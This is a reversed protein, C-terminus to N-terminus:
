NFPIEYDDKARGGFSSSFVEDASLIVRRSPIKGFSDHRGFLIVDSKFSTMRGGVINREWTIESLNKSPRARASNTILLTKSFRRAALQIASVLLASRHNATILNAQSPEVSLVNQLTNLSDLIIAGSKRSARFILGPLDLQGGPQLVHLDNNDVEIADNDSLNQLMSSYQLDYDLYHVQLGLELYERVISQMVTLKIRPEDYAVSVIETKSIDGILNELNKM